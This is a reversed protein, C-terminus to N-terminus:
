NYSPKFRGAVAYMQNSIEQRARDREAQSTIVNELTNHFVECLERITLVATEYSIVQKENVAIRSATEKTRISAANAVGLESLSGHFEGRKSVAKQLNKLGTGIKNLKLVVTEAEGERVAAQLETFHENLSKAVSILHEIFRRSEGHNIMSLRESLLFEEIAVNPRTDTLRADRYAAVLAKRVRGEPLSRILLPIQDSAHTECMGDATKARRCPKGSKRCLPQGAPYSCHHPELDMILAHFQEDTGKFEKPVVLPNGMKDKLVATM